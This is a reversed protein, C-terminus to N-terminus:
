LELQKRWYLHLLYLWLSLRLAALLCCVKGAYLASQLFSLAKLIHFGCSLFVYYQGRTYQLIKKCCM